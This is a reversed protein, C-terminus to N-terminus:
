TKKELVAQVAPDVLPQVRQAGQTATQAPTPVSIGSTVVDRLVKENMLLTLRAKWPLFNSVGDLRDEVKVSIISM